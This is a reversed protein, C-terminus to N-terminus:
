DHPSRWEDGRLINCADLKVIEGPRILLNTREDDYGVLRSPNGGVSRYANDYITRREWKSGGARDGSYSRQGEEFTMIIRSVQPTIYAAFYTPTTIRSGDPLCAMDGIRPLGTELAINLFLASYGSNRRWAKRSIDVRTAEKMVLGTAIRYISGQSGSDIGEGIESAQQALWELSEAPAEPAILAIDRNIAAKEWQISGDPVVPVLPRKM